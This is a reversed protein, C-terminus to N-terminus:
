KEELDEYWFVTKEPHKGIIKPSRKIIRGSEDFAAFFLLDHWCDFTPMYGAKHLDALLQERCQQVNISDPHTDHLASYIMAEDATNLLEALSIQANASGVFVIMLAALITNRM